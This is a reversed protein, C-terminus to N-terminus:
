RALRYDLRSDHYEMAASIALPNPKIWSPIPPFPAAAKIARLAEEDLLQSGSSRMLRLRELQGYPGIIFEVTLTGQLGYRQALEPYAWQSEILQKIKTFYTVYIPDRTDLSVPGSNRSRSSWNVPPLLEKITPLPREVIVSQEPVIERPAEAPAPQPPPSPAEARAIVEHETRQRDKAPPSKEARRPSDKKAIIAPIDAPRARATRPVRTLASQEKEPAVLLSVPITDPESMKIRPSSYIIFFFVFHLAMSVAFFRLYSINLLAVM